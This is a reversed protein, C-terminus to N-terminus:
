EEEAIEIEPYKGHVARKVKEQLSELSGSYWPPSSDYQQCRALANRARGVTDIPFHDENDTVDPDDNDFIADPRNRVKAEPDNGKVAIMTILPAAAEEVIERVMEADKEFMEVGGKRYKKKLKGEETYHPKYGKNKMWWSLSWPNSIEDDHEKMREVTGKWGPPSVAERDPMEDEANPTTASSRSEDGTKEDKMYDTGSVGQNHLSWATAFAKEPEGSHQEKLRKMAQESWDPPAKATLIRTVVGDIDIMVAEMPQGPFSFLM